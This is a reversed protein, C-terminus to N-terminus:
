LRRASRMLMVFLSGSGKAIKQKLVKGDKGNLIGTRGNLGKVTM